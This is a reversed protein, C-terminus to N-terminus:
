RMYASKSIFFIDEIENGTYRLRCCSYVAVTSFYRLCFLVRLSTRHTTHFRVYVFDSRLKLRLEGYRSIWEYVARWHEPHANRTEKGTSEVVVGYLLLLLMPRYHLYLPPPPPPPPPPPAPPCRHARHVCLDSIDAPIEVAM